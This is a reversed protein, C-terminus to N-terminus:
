RSPNDARRAGSPCEPLTRGLWTDLCDAGNLLDIVRLIDAPGCVGSRDVDCQWIPYAPQVQGNLNDIVGLIDVPGATRDCNVDAPLYGICVMEQCATHEVCTWKGTPIISDLHITVTQGVVTVDRIPPQTGDPTVTVNFDDAGIGATNWTVTMQITDWGAPNSCGLEPHLPDLYAPGSPQRADIACNPPDSSGACHTICQEGDIAQNIGDFSVTGGFCAAGCADEPPTVIYHIETPFPEFFPGCKV